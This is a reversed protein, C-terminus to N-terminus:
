NSKNKLKEAEILENLIALQYKNLIPELEKGNRWLILQHTIAERSARKVLMQQHLKNNLVPHKPDSKGLMIYTYTSEITETPILNM